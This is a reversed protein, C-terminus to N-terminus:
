SIEELNKEIYKELDDERVLIRRGIKIHPISKVLQYATNKGIGLLNCIDEINLLKKSMSLNGKM